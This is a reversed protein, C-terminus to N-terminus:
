PRPFFTAPSATNLAATNQPLVLPIVRNATNVPARTSAMPNSILPAASASGSLPAAIPPQEQGYRPPTLVLMGSSDLWSRSLSHRRPPKIFVGTEDIWDLQGLTPVHKDGSKVIILQNGYIIEAQFQNNTGTLAWIIPRPNPPASSASPTPFQLPTSGFPNTAAEQGQKRQLEVERMRKEIDALNSLSMGGAVPNSTGATQSPPLSPNAQAWATIPGVSAILLTTLLRQAKNLNVM